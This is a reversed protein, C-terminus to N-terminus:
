LLRRRLKFLIRMNYIRMDVHPPVFIDMRM